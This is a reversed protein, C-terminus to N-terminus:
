HHFTRGSHDFTWSFSEWCSIGNKSSRIFRIYHHGSWHAISRCCHQTFSGLLYFDFVNNSIIYLLTFYNKSVHFVLSKSNNDVNTINLKWGEKIYFFEMKENLNSFSSYITKWWIKNGMYLFAFFCHFIVRTVFHWRMKSIIDSFMCM